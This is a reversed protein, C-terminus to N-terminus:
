FRMTVAGLPDSKQLFAVSTIVILAYGAALPTDWNVLDDLPDTAVFETAALRPLLRTCTVMEVEHLAVNPPRPRESSVVVMM